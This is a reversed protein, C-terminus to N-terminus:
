LRTAPTQELQHRIKAAAAAAETAIRARAQAAVAPDKSTAAVAAVETLSEYLERLASQPRPQDSAQARAPAAPLLLAAVLLLVLPARRSAPVPCRGPTPTPSLAQVIRSPPSM